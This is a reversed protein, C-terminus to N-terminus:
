RQDYSQNLSGFLHVSGASASPVCCHLFWATRLSIEEASQLCVISLLSSAM